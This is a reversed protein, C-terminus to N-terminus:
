KSSHWIEEKDLRVEKEILPTYTKKLEMYWNSWVTNKETKSIESLMIGKLIRDM